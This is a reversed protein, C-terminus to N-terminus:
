EESMKLLATFQLKHDRALQRQSRALNGRSFNGEEKNRYTLNSSDTTPTKCLRAQNRTLGMKQIVTSPQDGQQFLTVFAIRRDRKDM